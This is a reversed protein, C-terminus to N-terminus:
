FYIKEYLYPVEKLDMKKFDKNIEPMTYVIKLFIDLVKKRHYTFSLLKANKGKQLFKFFLLPLFLRSM